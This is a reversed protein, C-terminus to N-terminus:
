APSAQILMILNGCTDDIVAQAGWPMATPEVTFRVGLAKLRGHEAELDDVHFATLPIGEEKLAAQYTRAPPFANPELSLEAGNPDEPSAVTIWRYEGAPLEMRKVFGLVGTYFALAREQDEV